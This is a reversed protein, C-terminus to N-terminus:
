RCGTRAEDAARLIGDWRSQAISGDPYIVVVMDSRFKADLWDFASGTNDNMMWPHCTPDTWHLAMCCMAEDGHCAHEPLEPESVVDCSLM